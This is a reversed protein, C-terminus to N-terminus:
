SLSTYQKVVSPGLEAHLRQFTATSRASPWQPGLYKEPLGPDTRLLDTWDKTLLLLQPLADAHDPEADEWQALFADHAARLVDLDWARAVLQDTPAPFSPTGQFAHALDLDEPPLLDALLPRVDVRGPAIWLNPQLLGFGAWALRPLLHYRANRLRAPLPCSLVTWIDDRREFPASDNLRGRGQTILHEGEVTPAFVTTRGDRRRTLLGRHTMRNLTARTAAEGIGVRGLVAVFTKSPLAPVAGDTANQSAFGFVSLVMDQPRSPSADTETEQEM